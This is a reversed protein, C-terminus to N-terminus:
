VMGYYLPLGPFSPQLAVRLLGDGTVCVATRLNAQQMVVPWGMVHQARSSGVQPAERGFRVVDAVMRLFSPSVLNKRQIFITSLDHSAWELKGALVPPRTSLATNVPVWKLVQHPRPMPLSTPSQLIRTFRIYPLGQADDAHASQMHSVMPDM